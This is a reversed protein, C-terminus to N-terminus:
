EGKAPQMPIERLVATEDKGLKPRYITYAHDGSGTYLEALSCRGSACAFVLKGQGSAEWAKKPDVPAQPLLAIAPGSHANSLWFVPISTRQSADVRYTGPEMVKDGARFEFPISATMAQASATGAVVVLAATAIMLKTTLKKM